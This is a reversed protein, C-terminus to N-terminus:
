LMEPVVTAIRVNRYQSIKVPSQECSQMSLSIYDTVDNISQM